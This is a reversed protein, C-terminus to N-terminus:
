CATIVVHFFLVLTHTHTHHITYPTYAHNISVFMDLTDEGGRGRPKLECSSVRMQNYKAGYNCARIKKKSFGKM